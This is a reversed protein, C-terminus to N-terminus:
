GELFGPQPCSEKRGSKPPNTTTKLNPSTQQHIAVFDVGKNHVNQKVLIWLRRSGRNRRDCATRCSCLMANTVLRGPLQRGNGSPKGPTFFWLITLQTRGSSALCNSVAVVWHRLLSYVFLKKQGTNLVVEGKRSNPLNLHQM